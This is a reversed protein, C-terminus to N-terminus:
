PRSRARARPSERGEPSVREWREARLGPGTHSHTQRYGAELLRRTMARFGYGSNESGKSLVWVSRSRAILPDLSVPRIPLLPTDSGRARGVVAVPVDRPRYYAYCFLDTSRALIVAEAPAAEFLRRATAFDSIPKSPGLLKAATATAPACLALGAAALRLPRAPLADIAIGIAIALLPIVMAYHYDVVSWLQVSVFALMLGVLTGAGALLPWARGRAAPHRRLSWALIALGVVFLLTLPLKLPGELEPGPGLLYPLRRAAALVSVRETGVARMWRVQFQILPVLPLSLLLAGAAPLWARFDRARASTAAALVALPLLFLGLYHLHAALGACFAAALGCIWSPKSRYAWFFWAALLVVLALLSYCRANHSQSILLPSIATLGAAWLGASWGGFWRGVSSTAGILVIGAILPLVRLAAESKGFLALAGAELLYFLPPHVDHPISRLLHSVGQGSIFYTIAEDDWLPRRTLEYVRVAGGLLILLWWTALFSRPSVPHAPPRKASPNCVLKALLQSM